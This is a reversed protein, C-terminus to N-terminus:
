IGPVPHGPKVVLFQTGKEDGEVVQLAIKSTNLGVEV